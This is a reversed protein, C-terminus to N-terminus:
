EVRAEGFTQARAAVQHILEALHRANDAFGHREKVLARAAAARRASAAEDSLAELMASALQTPQAPPALLATIGDRAIEPVGGVLTAVVPVGVAFAELVVNPLGETLSSLVFLDVGPLLEIFETRHGCFTVRAAINLERCLAELRGREPGDGFVLARTEPRALALQSYARLFDGQAKEPSLRGATAVLKVDPSLSFARLLRFRAEPRSPLPEPVDVANPITVVSGPRLGLSLLEERKAKSVAVIRDM